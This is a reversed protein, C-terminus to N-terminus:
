SHSRILKGSPTMVIPLKSRPDMWVSHGDEWLEVLFHCELGENVMIQAAKRATRFVGGSPMSSHVILWATMGILEDVSLGAGFDRDM